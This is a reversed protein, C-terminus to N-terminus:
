VGRATQAYLRGLAKDYATTTQGVLAGTDLVISTNSLQPLYESLLGILSDLPTASSTATIDGMDFAGLSGFDFSKKIQNTVVSENDRIGKAFLDMMDPAYTHFNSLPGKEPESFGLYSKVTSAVNRVTDVLKSFMSVIGSIFNDILDKGWQKANNVAGGIAEGIMTVIKTGTELLKSKLNIIGTVLTTVIQLAAKVVKPLNSIIGQVLMIILQMAAELLLPLNEIIATVLNEIIVPAAEILRPLAEIIGEVLALIIQIAADILASLNDPDTLVEVITLIVDIITPILSPLMEAIGQALSILLKAGMEIITPLNELITTALLEVIMLVTSVLSDLNDSIGQIITTIMNAGSDLLDPLVNELLAPIKDFVIPLMETILTGVGTLAQEVRPIVNNIVGGVREGGEDVSGVISEILNDILQGMDANDDALGAVLNTWAGKMMSISGSITTSAEKATTGTIGMETQVVHIADVIDAYSSVDYEIGSIKSADELLREMEEKTGGYGLKLNDLMTYNQKAFGQYANQISEVSTGMKNANDAMDTIAMDAKDAAAQTDGGLSATLSAAFSTVQEMYENASLGATKYANSANDMVTEQASIMNQYETGVETVSKGVSAAYEQLSMGQAGFLTEVGGVLQEYDAYAQVSKTVLVGIGSAAATVGAAAIKTMSSFASGIGSAISKSSSEAENLQAKYDNDDLSIKAFLEFVNM